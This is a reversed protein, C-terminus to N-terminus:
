LEYRLRLVRQWEADAECDGGGQVNAAQRLPEPGDAAASTLGAAVNPSALGATSTPTIAGAQARTNFYDFRVGGTLLLWPKLKLTDLFNVAYSESTVHTFGSYAVATPTFADNYTPNLASTYQLGPAFVYKSRLPSSRERGGEVAVTYDNDISGVRVHGIAETRNWM